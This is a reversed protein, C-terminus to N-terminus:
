VLSFGLSRGREKRKRLFQPFPHRDKKWHGPKSEKLLLTAKNIRVVVDFGDIYSGKGTHFASNAAGIIAVRKGRLLSHLDLTRRNLLYLFFGLIFRVGRTLMGM